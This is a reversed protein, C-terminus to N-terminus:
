GKCVVSEVDRTVKFEGDAPALGHFVVHITFDLGPSTTTVHTSAHDSFIFHPAPVNPSDFSEHFIDNLTYIAGTESGTGTARTRSLLEYHLHAPDDLAGDVTVENISEGSFAILEGNCPSEIEFNFAEVYKAHDLTLPLNASTPSSETGCGTLLATVLATAWTLILSRM